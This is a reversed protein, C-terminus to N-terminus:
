TANNSAEQTMVARLAWIAYFLPALDKSYNAGPWEKDAAQFLATVAPTYPTLNGGFTSIQLVQQVRGFTDLRYRLGPEAFVWAPANALELEIIAQTLKASYEIMEKKCRECVPM